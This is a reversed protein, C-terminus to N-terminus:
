PTLAVSRGADDRGAGEEGQCLGVHLVDFLGNAVVQPKPHIIHLDVFVRRLANKHKPYAIIYGM